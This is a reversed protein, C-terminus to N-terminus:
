LIALNTQNVESCLNLGLCYHELREPDTFLLRMRFSRDIVICISFYTFMFILMIRIYVYIEQILIFDSDYHCMKLGNSKKKIKTIPGFQGRQHKHNDRHIRQDGSLFTSGDSQLM